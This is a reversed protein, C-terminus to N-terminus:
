KVLSWLWCHVNEVCKFSHIVHTNQQKRCLEYAATKLANELCFTFYFAFVFVSAHKSKKM